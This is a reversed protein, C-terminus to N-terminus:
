ARCRELMQAIFKEKTLRGTLVQMCLRKEDESVTYGEIEVSAVANKLARENKEQLM